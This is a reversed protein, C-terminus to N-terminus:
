KSTSKEERSNNIRPSYSGEIEPYTTLHCGHVGDNLTEKFYAENLLPSKKV